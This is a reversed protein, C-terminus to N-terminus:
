TSPSRSSPRERSLPMTRRLSDRGVHAFPQRDDGASLEDGCEALDAPNCHSLPAAVYEELMGVPGDREHHRKMALELAAREGAHQTFCANIALFQSAERVWICSTVPQM